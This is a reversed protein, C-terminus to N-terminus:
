DRGTVTSTIPARPTPSSSFAALSYPHSIRIKPISTLTQLSTDFRCGGVNLRIKGAQFTHAKEVATKEKQIVARSATVERWVAEVRMAAEEKVESAVEHAAALLWAREEVGQQREQELEAFAERVSTNTATSLSECLAKEMGEPTGYNHQDSEDGRSRKPPMASATARASVDILLHPSLRPATRLGRPSNFPFVATLLNLLFCFVALFKNSALRETAFSLDFLSFLPLCFSTTTRNFLLSFVSLSTPKRALEAPQGGLSSCIPFPPRAQRFACACQRRHRNSDRLPHVHRLCLRPTREHSRPRATLNRRSFQIEAHVARESSLFVQLKRDTGSLFSKQKRM